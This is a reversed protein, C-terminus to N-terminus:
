LQTTIKVIRDRQTPLKWRNQFRLLFWVENVGRWHGMMLVNSASVTDVYNGGYAYLDYSRYSNGTEQRFSAYPFLTGTTTPM